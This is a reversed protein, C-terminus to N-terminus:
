YSFSVVVVFVVSKMVGMIGMNVVMKVAVGM